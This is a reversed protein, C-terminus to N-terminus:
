MKRSFPWGSQFIQISFEAVNWRIQEDWLKHLDVSENCNFSTGCLSLALCAGRFNGCACVDSSRKTSLVGVSFVYM